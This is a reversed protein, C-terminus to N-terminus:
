MRGENRWADEGPAHSYVSGEFTTAYLRGNMTAAACGFAMGPMAPATSWEQAHVNYLNVENSMGDPSMGGIAYLHDGAHGLALARRKFPQEISRWEPTEAELDMALMTGHWAGDDA